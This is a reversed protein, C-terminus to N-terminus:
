ERERERQAAYLHLNPFNPLFFLLLMFIWLWLWSVVYSASSSSIYRRRRPRRQLATLSRTRSFLCGWLRLLQPLPLLFLVSRLIFMSFLYVIFVYPKREICGCRTVLATPSASSTVDFRGLRFQAVAAATVVFVFVFIRTHGWTLLHSHQKQEIM